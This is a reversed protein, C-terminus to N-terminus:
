AAPRPRAGRALVGDIRARVAPAVAVQEGVALLVLVRVLVGDREAPRQVEDPM